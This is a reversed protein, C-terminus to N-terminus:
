VDGTAVVLDDAIQCGIKRDIGGGWISDDLPNLASTAKAKGDMPVWFPHNGTVGLLKRKKSRENFCGTV